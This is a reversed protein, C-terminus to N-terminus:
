KNVVYCMDFVGNKKLFGEIYVKVLFLGLFFKIGGIFMGIVVFCVFSLVYFFGCFVIRNNRYWMDCMGDKKVLYVKVLVNILILVLMKRLVGFLEKNVKYWMDFEGNKKVLGFFERRYERLRLDWFDDKNNGSKCFIRWNVKFCM